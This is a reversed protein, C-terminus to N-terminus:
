FLPNLAVGESIYLSFAEKLNTGSNARPAGRIFRNDEIARTDSFNVFCVLFLFKEM